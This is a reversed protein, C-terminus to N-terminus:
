PNKGNKRSYIRMLIFFVILLIVAILPVILFPITEYTTEKPEEDEIELTHKLPDSPYEDLTREFVIFEGAPLTTNL